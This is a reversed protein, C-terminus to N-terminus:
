RDCCAYCLEFSKNILPFEPLIENTAAVAVAPWNAYSSTRLRLRQVQNDRIDVSCFTRGRPSEVVAAGISGVGGLGDEPNANLCTAPALEESLIRTVIQISERIEIARMEIRARVDGTPDALTAPEFNPYELNPSHRRTDQAIGSARAAPGVVGLQVAQTRSITGVNRLRNLLSNNFLTERWAREADKSITLLRESASSAVAPSIALTAEGVKVTDFCFRHATLELNIQQAREKLEAFASNGVAFGVGACAAALDHLHNYCRELEILLTRSRAVERTPYIGLAQEAAMAFAVSNAVSCAACARAAITLAEKPDRGEASKELGRHKYFLRLDLHLIREGVVHFRFHGSEIIGAHIPGVAVQHVDRGIAPTTWRELTPDHTLLSATDHGRFEISAVDAAEREDWSAAPILDIVSNIQGSEVPCIIMKLETHRQFTIRVEPKGDRHAAHLDVFTFNAAILDQVAEVYSGRAVELTELTGKTNRHNPM